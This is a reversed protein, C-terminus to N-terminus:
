PTRGKEPGEGLERVRRKASLYDRWSKFILAALVVFSIGYASWVYGGYGGMSFWEAM